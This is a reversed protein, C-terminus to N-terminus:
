TVYLPIYLVEKNAIKTRIRSHKKLMSQKIYGIEAVTLLNFFSFTTHIIINM